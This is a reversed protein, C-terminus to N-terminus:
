VVDQRPEDFQLPFDFQHDIGGGRVSGVCCPADEGGAAWPRGAKVWVDGIPRSWMLSCLVDCKELM